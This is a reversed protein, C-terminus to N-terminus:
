SGVRCAEQRAAYRANAPAECARWCARPSNDDLCRDDCRKAETQYDAAASGDCIIKRAAKDAIAQERPTCSLLALGLALITKM